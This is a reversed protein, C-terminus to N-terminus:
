SCALAVSSTQRRRVGPGRPRTPANRGRTEQSRSRDSVLPRELETLGSWIPRGALDLGLGIWLSYAACTSGLETYSADILVSIKIESTSIVQINIGKASLAEFMTKAVGAHSRMGVGIVSVKAVDRSVELKQYGIKAAHSELVKLALDADRETSTFVINQRGETRSSAQVIM